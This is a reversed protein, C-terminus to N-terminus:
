GGAVLTGRGRGSAAAQRGGDRDASRRLGGARARGDAARVVVHDRVHSQDVHGGVGTGGAATKEGGCRVGDKWVPGSRAVSSSGWRFVDVQAAGRAAGSSRGPAPAIPFPGTGLRGTAGCDMRREQWRRNRAAESASSNASDQGARAAFSSRGSGRKAE